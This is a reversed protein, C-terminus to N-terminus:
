AAAALLDTQPARRQALVFRITWGIFFGASIGSVYIDNTMAGNRLQPSAAAIAQFVYHGLFIALMRLMPLVSGPQRVLGNRHDFSLSAPSLSWAGLGVGILAGAFWHGLVAAAGGDHTFLGALGWAIFIAPVAWVRAISTTRPRLRQAGLWILLALLAYVWIPTHTLLASLPM